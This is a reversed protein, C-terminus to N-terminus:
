RQASLHVLTLGQEGAAGDLVVSGHLKSGAHVHCVLRSDVEGVADDAAVTSPSTAGTPGIM